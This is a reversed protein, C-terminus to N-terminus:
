PVAQEIADAIREAAHPRALARSREEMRPLRPLAEGVADFLRRGNIGADLLVRAAGVRELSQANKLQHDDAAFPFPVLISAKAAATIEFLTGAGARCVLLDARAFAALMDDIFPVVEARDRMQSGAYADRVAEFDKGGTQHILFPPEEWAAFLPLSELVAQNIRRAGQSGGSILITFPPCHRKAPISFFQPRVPVGVVEVRTSPFFRAAEPFALLARSVYPAILRNALGPVANPEHVVIPIGAIAAMFLVPGSAYGGVGYVVDPGFSALIGRAQWFSYPLRFLTTFARFLGVRKLAGADITRLALGQAPALRAELGRSTGVMLIENGARRRLEAAVALAPIV